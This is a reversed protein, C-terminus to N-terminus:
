NKIRTEIKDFLKIIKKAREKYTMIHENDYYIKSKKDLNNIVEIFSNKNSHDYFYPTFQNMECINYYAPASPSIINKTRALYDYYKLPSCYYKAVIDDSTTILMYDNQSIEHELENFPILDKLIVKGIKIQENLINLIEPSFTESAFNGTLIFQVNSNIDPFSKIIKDFGRYSDVRGIYGIKIKKTEKHSHKNKISNVSKLVSSHEILFPKIYNNTYKPVDMSLKKSATIVLDFNRLIKFYKETKKFHNFSNVDYSQSKFADEHWENFDHLEYVFIWKKLSNYKQRANGWSILENPRRVYLVNKKNKDNWKPLIKLLPSLKGHNKKYFKLYQLPWLDYIKLKTNKIGYNSLIKIKNKKLKNVLLTTDCSHSLGDAMLMTQIKNAQFGPYTLSTDYLIKYRSM